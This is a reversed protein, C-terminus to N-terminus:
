GYERRKLLKRFVIYRSFRTFRRFPRESTRISYAAFLSSSIQESRLSRKTRNRYWSVATKMSVDRRLLRANEMVKTRMYSTGKIRVQVWRQALRGFFTWSDPCRSTLASLEQLDMVHFLAKRSENESEKVVRAAVRKWDVFTYMESVLVIAHAPAEKRNPLTLPEGDATAIPTDSRINNMAGSLQGIAKEIDKTVSTARRSSPRDRRVKFVSLAKAEVVCISREDFALVDILERTSDGDEVQPSRHSRGPYAVDILLQTLRELKEGEDSDGIVFPGDAATPTVEFVETSPKIDLTLPLHAHMRIEDAVADTSSRHVHEGFRDLALNLLRSFTSLHRQKSSEPTLLWYNSARLAEAAAAAADRDIMCSASLTPHNLENLCHLTTSEATLIQQLLPADEPASNPMLATFPHEPEDDVRFGLCLLDLPEARVVALVLACPAGMHLAKIATEPIKCVLVARGDGVEDPWVGISAFNLNESLRISPVFGM